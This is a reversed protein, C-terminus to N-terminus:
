KNKTGKKDKYDLIWCIPACVIVAPLCLVFMVGTFIVIAIIEILYIICFFITELFDLFDKM